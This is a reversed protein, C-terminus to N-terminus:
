IEMACHQQNKNATKSNNHSCLFRTCSKSHITEHSHTALNEIIYIVSILHFAVKSFQGAVALSIFNKEEITYMKGM